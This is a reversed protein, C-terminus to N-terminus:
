DLDPMQKLWENEYEFRRRKKMRDFHKKVADRDLKDGKYDVYKPYRKGSYGPATQNIIDEISAGRDDGGLKRRYSQSLDQDLYHNGNNLYEGTGYDYYSKVRALPKNNVVKGERLAERVAERIIGRLKSEHIGKIGRKMKHNGYRRKGVERNFWGKEHFPAQTELYDIENPEGDVSLADVDNIYRENRRNIKQQDSMGLESKIAERIMGRLRSETLRYRTM